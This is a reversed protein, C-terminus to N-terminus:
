NECLYPSTNPILRHVTTRAALPVPNPPAPVALFKDDDQPYVLLWIEEIRSGNAGSFSFLQNVKDFGENRQNAEAEWDVELCCNQAPHGPSMM